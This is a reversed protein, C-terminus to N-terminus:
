NVEDFRPLREVVFDTAELTGAMLALFGRALEDGVTTSADIVLVRTQPDKFVRTELQVKSFGHIGLMMTEALALLNEVEEFSVGEEFRCFKFVKTAKSKPCDACPAMGNTKDGHKM